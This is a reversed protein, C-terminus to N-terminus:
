VRSGLRKARCRSVRAGVYGQSWRSVPVTTIRAPVRCDKAVNWWCRLISPCCCLLVLGFACLDCWGKAAIRRELRELRRGSPVRGVRAESSRQSVFSTVGLGGPIISAMSLCWGWGEGSARRSQCTGFPGRAVSSTGLTGKASMSPHKAVDSATQLYM